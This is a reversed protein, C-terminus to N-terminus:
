CSADLRAKLADSWMVAEAGYERLAELDYADFERGRRVTVACWYGCAERAERGRDLLEGLTLPSFPLTSV